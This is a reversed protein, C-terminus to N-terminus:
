KSKKKSRPKRPPVVKKLKASRETLKRQLAPEVFARHVFHELIEAMTGLEEAQPMWGRHISAHGAETLTELRERDVGNILSTSVLADLKGAFTLDPDIGLQESAVDFVTRIGSASLRMLDNELAVYMEVMAGYLSDPASIEFEQNVFWDPRKRAAVAPWYAITEDFSIADEQLEEDWYHSYDESFTKITQCFVNDCGRCKLLYWNTNAWVGQDSYHERHYGTVDCNRVGNCTACHAKRIKDEGKIESTM